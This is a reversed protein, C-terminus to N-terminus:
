PLKEDGMNQCIGKLYERDADDLQTCMYLATEMTAKTENCFLDDPMHMDGTRSKNEYFCGGGCLYKAWCASCKPLNIVISRYYDNIGDVKYDAINGMKADTQGAFRHCPYIDGSVSIGVMGKGIGCGFYRKNGTIVPLLIQGINDPQMKRDRVSKLFGKWERENLAMMRRSMKEDTASWSTERNEGALVVPSAKIVFSTKLGVKKMGEKIEFPDVDGYATARAAIGPSVELLKSINEYVIDYSGSGDSFPRQRNQIAPPGDFSILTNIMEAKMFGIIEDTLLSANTTIGFTAKKNRESAKAKTYEVTKRILPFNLLPEGGFFSINVKEASKSNELLWDVARFATEQSMMGKAGYEGGQGYCYVCRMNCEQAVFLAIGRVGLEAKKDAGCDNADNADAKEPMNDDKDRALEHVLDFKRLEEVMSEPVLGGASSSVRDIIRSTLESIKHAAMQEVAFLYIEGNRSFRHFEKLLVNGFYRRGEYEVEYLGFM